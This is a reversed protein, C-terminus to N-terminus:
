RLKQLEIWTSGDDLRRVEIPAFKIEAFRRAIATARSIDTCDVGYYGSLISEGESYPGDQTILAGQNSRVVAADNEDLESSSVFEGTERLDKQIVAHVHALEDIEVDSLADWAKQNGYLLIMYKM